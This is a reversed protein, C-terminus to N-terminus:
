IITPSLFLSLRAKMLSQTLLSPDAWPILLKKVIPLGLGTGRNTAVDSRNEQAFPEFLHKQFEESMGIGNDSITTTILLKDNLTIDDKISVTITGGDPTFKVANSLLNFYIQNTRMIDVLPICGKISESNFILTQNKTECLPKIVAEMYGQFDKEFYPENHFVIKGSDVRAMDLIDNVLSLLFKSSTDIKDLAERTREPNEQEKAIHTMGIIGNMPTRIDHSMRSLFDTKAKMAENAENLANELEQQKYMQEDANEVFLIYRHNSIFGESRIIRVTYFHGDKLEVTLSYGDNKELRDKITKVATLLLYPKQYEEKIFREAYLAHVQPASTGSDIVSEYYIDTKIADLYPNDISGIFVDAYHHAISKALQAQDREKDTVDNILIVATEASNIKSVFLSIELVFRSRSGDNQPFGFSYKRTIIGSNESQYLVEPAFISAIEHRDADAIVCNAYYRYIDRYDNTKLSEKGRGEVHCKLNRTDIYIQTSFAASGIEKITEDREAMNEFSKANKFYTVIEIAILIFYVLFFLLFKKLFMNWFSIMICYTNSESDTVSYFVQIESNVFVIHLKKEHNNLDLLAKNLSPTMTEDVYGVKHVYLDSITSSIIFGDKDFLIASMNSYATKRDALISNIEYIKLDLDVSINENYKQVVSIEIKQDDAIWDTGALYATYPAVVMVEGNAKQAEQYWFRTGPDYSSYDGYKWSHAYGLKVSGDINYGNPYTLALGDYVMSGDSTKNFVSSFDEEHDQLWSNMEDFSPQGKEIEHYVHIMIGKFASLYKAKLIDYDNETDICFQNAESSVSDLTVFMFISVVLTTLIIEIWLILPSVRKKNGM